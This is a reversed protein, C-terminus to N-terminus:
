LHDPGRCSRYAQRVSGSLSSGAGKKLQSRMPIVANLLSVPVRRKIRNLIAMRKNLGTWDHGQWLANEYDSQQPTRHIGADTRLKEAIVM